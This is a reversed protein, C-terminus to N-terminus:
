ITLLTNKFSNDNDDKDDNRENANHFGRTRTFGSFPNSFVANVSSTVIIEDVGILILYEKM